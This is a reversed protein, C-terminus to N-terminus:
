DTNFLGSFPNTARQLRSVPGKQENIAEALEELAKKREGYIEELLFEMIELANLADDAEITNGPHSGHNGLWKIASFLGKITGHDEGLLNIRNGFSIIKDEKKEAIGLTTLLKEASVRISNCCSAPSSFYLSCATALPALVEKPAKSPYDILQLGPHFYSPSFYSQFVKTLEGRGDVDYDESVWGSGVVFVVENCTTCKLTCSFVYSVYEPDWWEEKHQARSEETELSKFEGDIRLLGSLCHPCKYGPINRSTFARRFNQKDMLQQLGKLFFVM